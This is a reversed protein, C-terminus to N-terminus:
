KEKWRIESIHDVNYRAVEIGKENHETIWERHAGVKFIFKCPGKKFIFKSGDIADHINDKLSENNTMKFYLVEKGSVDTIPDLRIIRKITDM